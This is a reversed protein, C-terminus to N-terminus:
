RGREVACSTQMLRCEHWAHGRRSSRVFALSLDSRGQQLQLTSRKVWLLIVAQVFCPEHSCCFCLRLFTSIHKKALRFNFPFKFLMRLSPSLSGGCTQLHWFARLIYFLVSSMDTDRMYGSASRNKRRKLLWNSISHGFKSQPHFRALPQWLEQRDPYSRGEKSKQELAAWRAPWRSQAPCAHKNFNGRKFWVNTSETAM